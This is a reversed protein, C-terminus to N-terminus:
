PLVVLTKSEIQSSLGSRDIAQFDFRYSGVAATPPLMITLSYLGSGQSNLLFPNGSSPNGNPLYSNFFVRSIDDSGNPDEVSLSLTILQNTTGLSVTDPMTVSRIVPADARGILTIPVVISNSNWGTKVEATAVIFLRGSLSRPTLFSLEGRYRHDNAVSDLNAGNDNIILSTLPSSRLDRFLQVKLIPPPTGPTLFLPSSEGHILVRLLVSSDSESVILPENEIFFTDPTVSFNKLSFPIVDQSIVYDSTKECGPILLLASFVIYFLPPKSIM